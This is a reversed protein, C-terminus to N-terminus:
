HVKYKRWFLLKEGSFKKGKMKMRLILVVIGFFGISIAIIGWMWEESLNQFRTSPYIDGGRAGSEIFITHLLDSTYGICLNFIYEYHHYFQYTVTDSDYNEILDTYSDVSDVQPINHQYWFLDYSNNWAYKRALIFLEDLTTNSITNYNTWLFFKNPNDFDNTHPTILNHLTFRDNWFNINWLEHIPYYFVYSIYGSIVGCYYSALEYKEEQFAQIAKETYNGIRYRFNEEELIHESSNGWRIVLEIYDGVGEVLEGDLSTEVEVNRISETGLFYEGKMNWLFKWRETKNLLRESAGDALWDITGYNRLKNYDTENYAYPYSEYGHNWASVNQIVLNICILSIIFIPYKRKM